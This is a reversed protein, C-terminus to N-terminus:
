WILRGYQECEMYCSECGTVSRQCAMGAQGQQLVDPQVVEDIPDLGVATQGGERSKDKVM